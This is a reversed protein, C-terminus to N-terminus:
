FICIIPLLINGFIGSGVIAGFGYSIMDSNAHSCSLANTTMEPISIGFACLLGAM